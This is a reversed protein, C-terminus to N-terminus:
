GPTEGGGTTVQDDQADGESSEDDAADAELPEDGTAHIDGDTSALSPAEGRALREIEQQAPDEQDTM